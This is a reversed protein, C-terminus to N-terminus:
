NIEKGTKDISIVRGEKMVMAKGNKFSNIVKDFEVAIVEKGTKDVFGWKGGLGLFGGGICVASLGESFKYTNDYKPPIITKNQSDILAWKGGKFYFDQPDVAGGVNVWALGESFDDAKDFEFPIIVKGQKDVAGWKTSIRNNPDRKGVFAYGNQFGNLSVEDYLFDIVQKGKVDIFGWKMQFNRVAAMGEKFSFAVEMFQPTIVVEDNQNKYGWRGNDDKFRKFDQAQLAMVMLLMLCNILINKSKM